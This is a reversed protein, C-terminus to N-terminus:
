DRSREEGGRDEASKSFDAEWEEEEEATATAAWAKNGETM